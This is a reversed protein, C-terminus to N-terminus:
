DILNEVGIEQIEQLLQQRKFEDLTERNKTVYEEKFRFNFYKQDELEQLQDQLKTYTYTNQLEDQLKLYKDRLAIRQMETRAEKLEEKFQNTLKEVEQELHLEQLKKTEEIQTDIIKLSDIVNSINTTQKYNQYSDELEQQHIQKAYLKNFLTAELTNGEKRKVPVVTTAGASLKESISKIVVDNKNSSQLDYSNM